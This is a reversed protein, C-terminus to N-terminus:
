PTEQTVVIKGSKGSLFLEFAESIQEVGFTHTVIRNVTERHDLLLSENESLEDFCFYESGLVSRETSIMDHSVDLLLTEGHGVCVLVGRKGILEMAMQRAVAKGTSDFAVDFQHERSTLDSNPDIPTGGLEDVLDRRWESIDSVFVPIEDGLRMKASVLLGLGIPGAGAIYISEIDDRVLQARRIAHGSTGLVDLLLTAEVASITPDVAFFNSEHVVELPGYGGDRTFGMDARKALCQNTAGHLCSRCSGCFDMLFVAGRTGVATNTDPGAQIVTGATEHGPIVTSGNFYQDRDSGCIANAEVQLVLEGRAAEPYARERFAIQGDGDFHPAITSTTM